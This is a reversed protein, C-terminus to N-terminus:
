TQVSSIQGQLHPWDYFSDMQLQFHDCNHTGDRLGLKCIWMEIIGLFAVELETFQHYIIFYLLFYKALDHGKFINEM